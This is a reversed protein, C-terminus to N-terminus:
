ESDSVNEMTARDCDVCEEEECDLLDRDKISLKKPKKKNGRLKKVAAKVLCVGGVIALGTKVLAGTSPRKKEPTAEVERVEIQQEMNMNENEM